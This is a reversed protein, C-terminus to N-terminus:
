LTCPHFTTAQIYGDVIFDWPTANSALTGKKSLQAKTKPHTDSHVSSQPQM